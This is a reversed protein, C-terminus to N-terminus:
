EGRAKAEAMVDKFLDAAEQKEAEIRELREVIQRLEASDAKQAEM